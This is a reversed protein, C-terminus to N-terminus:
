AIRILFKNGGMAKYINIQTGEKMKQKEFFFKWDGLMKIAFTYKVAKMEWNHEEEDFMSVVTNDM